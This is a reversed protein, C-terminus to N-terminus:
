AKKNDVSENNKQYIELQPFPIEIGAKDLAELANIYLESQAKFYAKRDVRVRVYIRVGYEALGKVYVEVIKKDVVFKDKQFTKRLLEICKVLNTDYGVDFNFEINRTDFFSYNKIISNNIQLNPIIIMQRATTEIQTYMVRINRVNGEYGSVSIYDGVQFPKFILIFVGSAVNGINDKLGMGVGIGLGGLVAALSTTSVGAVSLSIMAVVIIALFYIIETLFNIASPEITSKKFIKLAFKRIQICIFFGILFVIVALIINIGNILAWKKVSILLNETWDVRETVVKQVVNNEPM